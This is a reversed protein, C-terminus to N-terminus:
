YGHAERDTSPRQGETPRGERAVRKDGMRSVGGLVVTLAIAVFFVLLAFIFFGLAFSGM